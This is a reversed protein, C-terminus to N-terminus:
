ILRKHYIAKKLVEPPPHRGHRKEELEKIHSGSLGAESKVMPFRPAQKM